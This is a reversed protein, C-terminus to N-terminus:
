QAEAKVVPTVDDIKYGEPPAFVAADPAGRELDEVEYTTKGKRPDEDIGLMVIGLDEARWVENTTMLPLENGEEGAPITRTTRTGHAEVGNISKKGLDESKYESKAPRNLEELKRREIQEATPAAPKKAAQTEAAHYVRAVKEMYPGVQWMTTTKTVPDFVNVSLTAAPVGNEDKHCGMAMQTLWRGKAEHAIKTRVYARVYSGDPLRQEFTSKATGSFAAENRFYGAYSNFGNFGMSCAPEQGCAALGAGLVVAAVVFCRMWRM